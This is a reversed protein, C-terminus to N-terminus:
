TTNPLACLRQYALEFLHRLPFASHLALHIRRISIRILTGLKLLRTRLTGVRANALETHQLAQQRLANLLVYAFASFWLRFQNDDFYHNSTRDSFLDLQQEKLRNEMEGRPCYLNTHIQKSSAKRASLSTVVFHHRLGNAGATLKCVVRRPRSWSDLTQYTFCGYDIAEPVLPALENDSVSEPALHPSLANVVQARRQQYDRSASQQWRYSMQVLRANSGQAFVYDVNPTTECWSMIEDRSYASDGRVVIKVGPWQAIIAPILRQLEELAGAAPDVNAPRLRAALLHRESFIYLPTYCTSHYYGNFAACEQQGHTIDDTVDMDLILRRPPSPHQDFFVALFVQELQEPNVETKVYRPNVAVSEDRRYSKELRNLTSKGALPASAGRRSELKGVAIALLPDHRLEDHDNLDEYGQVLGYLRQAVMEEITHEIRSPDRHDTFCAAIRKSIKYHRDVQEILLLGGDSSIHGGTFEAVVPRHELSDFILASPPPSSICETKPSPM